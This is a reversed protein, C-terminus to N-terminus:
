GAPRFRAQAIDWTGVNPRALGSGFLCYAWGSVDVYLTSDSNKALGPNHNWPLGTVASGLTGIVQWSGLLSNADIARLIRVELNGSSDVNSIAAYWHQDTPYYAIDPSEGNGLAGSAAIQTANGPQPSFTIGGTGEALRITPSLTSDFYVHEITTTGPLYAAGSTGAGYGTTSTSPTIIPTPYATWNLVGRSFAVGISNNTGGTARASTYFLAYNYTTGNYPFSGKVVSPDCTHKFTWPSNAKSFVKVPTSWGGAGLSGPKTSLWIEDGTSSETCWWLHHTGSVLLHAPAYDYKNARGQVIGDYILQASCIASLAFSMGVAAIVTTRRKSWKSLM